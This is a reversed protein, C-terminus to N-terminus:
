FNCVFLLQSDFRQSRRQQVNNTVPLVRRNVRKINLFTITCFILMLIDPLLTIIIVMYIAFFIIYKSNSPVQCTQNYIEYFFFTHINTLLIFILVGTSIQRAVKIESWSRIEVNNSVALCRDVISLLM